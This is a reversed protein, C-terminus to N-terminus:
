KKAKKDKKDKAVKAVDDPNDSAEKLRKARVGVLREDARAKRLAVYASFKKDAETITRSKVKLSPKALPLVPTAVQAALKREEESAEGKKLKKSRKMPFLILKAKYEKLRQVNLQLSEVSKNRRRPDVAIGVSRAFGPTLKARSIEELTFGRGLRLKTHYRVTPCRVAPRLPAAPRPNVLAAKKIRHQRRRYKRASQKFWTRIFRQWDKHFHGNPIMNNGKM